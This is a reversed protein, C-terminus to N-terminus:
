GDFFLRIGCLSLLIQISGGEIFVCPQRGKM